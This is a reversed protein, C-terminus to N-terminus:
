NSRQNRFKAVCEMDLTYLNENSRADHVLRLSVPKWISQQEHWAALFSGILDLSLNPISVSARQEELGTPVGSAERYEQGPLVNVTYRPRQRGGITSVVEGVRKEFDSRPQVQFLTDEQQAQVRLYRGIDLALQERQTVLMDYERDARRMRDAGLLAIVFSTVVSLITITRWKTM